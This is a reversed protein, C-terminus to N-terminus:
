AKGKLSSMAQWLAEIGRQQMNQAVFVLGTASVNSIPRLCDFV